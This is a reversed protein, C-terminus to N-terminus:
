TASVLEPPPPLAPRTGLIISTADTMPSEGIDNVATVRYNMIIGSPSLNEHTFELSTTEGTYYFEDDVSATNSYVQYRIISAGGDTM